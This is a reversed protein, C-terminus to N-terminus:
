DYEELLRKIIRASEKLLAILQDKDLSDYLKEKSPCVAILYNNVWSKVNKDSVEIM